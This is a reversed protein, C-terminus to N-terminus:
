ARWRVAVGGRRRALCGRTRGARESHEGGVPRGGVVWLVRISEGNRLRSSFTAWIHVSSLFRILPLHQRHLRCRRGVAGSEGNARRLQELAVCLQCWTALQM